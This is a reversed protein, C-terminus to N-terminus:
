QEGVKNLGEDMFSQAKRDIKAGLRHLAPLYRNELLHIRALEILTCSVFVITVVILSYPILWCSASFSACQFLDRWIIPSAFGNDHILYVGFTASSVINIFRSFRIELKLFALFMLCAVLLIPLKQMGYFFTANSAFFAIKTGLFDFIVVTFFTIMVCLLALNILNVSSLKTNFDYLKVFGSLSYLFVFWLLENSQFSRKTITPIISWCFFLLLLFCLYRKKDLTVLLRNIYPSLLYLVFYTSPFWWLSFTVPAIQKILLKVSFSEMSTAVLIVYIGFSYFVLQFWLKLIKSTKTKHSSVLFYGSILVFINTGIKGGMGLLQIYLRNISVTDTPYSFGGHVAFHDAIIILMAVIRLLEISSQRTTIQYNQSRM